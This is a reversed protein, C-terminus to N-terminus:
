RKASYHVTFLGPQAAFYAALEQIEESTLSIAQSGMVPDKRKGDKYEHLAHVLYDEHQGALIPWNPTVSVGAEGHCAVCTAAKAPAQGVPKDIKKVAGESSFFAAIDKMDQEKQSTAQAHMTKHPRTQNQYGQLAVVLYEPHQGGLKPVRFSPYANRYGPIGHCGMCTDSLIGGRSIDVAPPALPASADQASASTLALNGALVVGLLVALRTYHM